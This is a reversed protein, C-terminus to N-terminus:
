NSFTLTLYDQVETKYNKIKIMQDKSDSIIGSLIGRFIIYKSNKSYITWPYYISAIKPKTSDLVVIDGFGLAPFYDSIFKEWDKKGYEQRLRRGYDMSIKFLVAEGNELKLIEDEIFYFINSEVPFFRINKYTLLGGKYHFFGIDILNKLSNLSNKTPRIENMKKYFEDYKLDNINQESIYKSTKEQINKEPGCIFSCENDDRGQCKLQVGEITKDELAYAWIGSIGGDGMIYGFGNNRCIIYNDFSIEFMKNDLDVKYDTKTSFMGEIYRVLKYTFDLFEKKNVTNITPFNSMSAYNYGFKKGASYLVKKGKEGFIKIIEKEISEFLQESVFLERLFTTQNKITFKTIVFGPKDIIEVKPIFINKIYWNVIKDKVPM